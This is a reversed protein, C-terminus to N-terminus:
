AGGTRRRRGGRRGRRRGPRRGGVGALLTNMAAATGSALADADARGAPPTSSRRAATARGGRHGEEAAGRRAHLGPLDQLNLDIGFVGIMANSEAKAVYGLAAKHALSRGEPSLRDFM